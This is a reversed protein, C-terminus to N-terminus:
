GTIGLRARLSATARVFRSRNDKSLRFYPTLTGGFGRFFREIKPVMSGEFDFIGCPRSGRIAEWLVLSAANSARLNPDGAGLVYNATRGDDFAVAAAHDTGSTDTAFLIRARHIAKGAAILKELLTADVMEPKGGETSAKAALRLYRAPDDSEVVTLEKAASRIAARTTKEMAALLEEDSRALDVRYTYRTTQTFTRWSFALWNTFAPHCQITATSFRPLADALLGSWEMEHAQRTVPKDTPSEPAFLPGLTQTLKPLFIFEPSSVPRLPVATGAVIRGNERVALLKYEGPCVANLWATHCYISGQPSSRVFADWETPLPDGAAPATHGEVTQSSPETM